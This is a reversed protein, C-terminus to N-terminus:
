LQNNTLYIDGAYISFLGMMTILYRGGFFIQWIESDINKESLKKECICMWIGFIFVIVGHGADGFM